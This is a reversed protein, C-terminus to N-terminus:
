DTYPPPTEGEGHSPGPENDGRLIREREERELRRKEEEATEHAASAGTTATPTSSAAAPPPAPTPDSHTAGLHLVREREERELRIKEEEASEGYKGVHPAAGDGDRSLSGTAPGPGRDGASVPVGTEAITPVTPISSSSDAGASLPHDAAAHEPIVLPVASVKPSSTITPHQPIPAPSNNLHTPDIPPPSSVPSHAALHPSSTSPHSQPPPTGGARPVGSPIRELEAKHTEGFSKKDTQDDDEGEEEVALPQIQQGPKYNNLAKQLSARVTATRKVGTYPKAATPAEDPLSDFLRESAQSLLLLKEAYEKIADWKKGESDRLVKRKLKELAVESTADDARLKKLQGELEAIRKDTAGSKSGETRLRHIQVALNARATRRPTLAAEADRLAKLPLRTGELSGALSTALAGSAFNFYALRDTV